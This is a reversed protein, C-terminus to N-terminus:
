FDNCLESMLIIIQKFEFMQLTLRHILNWLKIENVNAGAGIAGGDIGWVIILRSVETRYKYIGKALGLRFNLM